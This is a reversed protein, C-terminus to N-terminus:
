ARPSVQAVPRKAEAANAEEVEDLMTALQSTRQEDGGVADPLLEFVQTVFQKIYRHVPMYEKTVEDTEWDALPENAALADTLTTGIRRAVAAAQGLAPVKSRMGDPDASIDSM